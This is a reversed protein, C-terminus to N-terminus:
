RRIKQLKYEYYVLCLKQPTITKLSDIIIFILTIPYRILHYSLIIPNFIIIDTIILMEFRRLIRSYYEVAINKCIFLDFHVSFM